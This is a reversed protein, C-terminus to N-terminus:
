MDGTAYRMDRLRLLPPLLIPSRLAGISDSYRLHKCPGGASGLRDALFYLASMVFCVLSRFIVDDNFVSSFISVPHPIERDRMCIDKVERRFRVVVGFDGVFASKTQDCVWCRVDFMVGQTRNEYEHLRYTAIYRYLVDCFTHTSRMHYPIIRYM